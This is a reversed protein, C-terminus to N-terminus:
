LYGQAQLHFLEAYKGDQEILEQHTGYELKQGNELFLIRDAMRVTSFRHSILVAMKNEILETFRVFVEHEARADLASTPEDLIFLQADRMYARALAVKQWQGGSLEVGNKFRKGLFQEYREPLEEIVTDALSKQASHEIKSLQNLEEINGIAINESAKLEFRIYDQFIIGINSRLENLSYEKLDKGDLLIRGSTPEYLRALLKVLTTKGAGNEGVLALKEGQNLHFSLDKIAYKKSNPYKFSVKEFTFGKQINQPISLANQASRITPEIKFFDFLDQLYLSSDAINSFRNMIQQLRSSMQRFAGALFTLKGVTIVGSITQMIIFVYAGYYAITGIASLLSGVLARSKAIKKNAKYYKDALIKFREALFNALGFIKVEKATKNSAGIFRLYDLERREPTWGRTLSYSRKNFHTEGLFSPIIAIFLILLLWPNFAVLAGGLSLVTIISEVQSLVQSMLITRGTTQRRALELKDYFEADEFQYLDMKAAHRIIEVSTSNSFLDGLMGDVLTTIRSLLNSVVALVLEIAVMTWLYTQDEQGQNDILQLVSDVIEQGVYLMAVPLVSRLLRLFLNVITLQPSVKWILKFFEPLNRLASFQERLTMKNKDSSKIKAM